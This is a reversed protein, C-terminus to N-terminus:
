LGLLCGVFPYLGVDSRRARLARVAMLLLAGALHFDAGGTRAEILATGVAVLDARGDGGDHPDVGVQLPNKADSQFSSPRHRM